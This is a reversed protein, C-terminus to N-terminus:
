VPIVVSQDAVPDAAVVDGDGPTVGGDDQISDASMSRVM